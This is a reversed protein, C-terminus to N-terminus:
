AEGDDFFDHSVEKLEYVQAITVGVNHELMLEALREGDILVVKKGEIREVSERADRTFSSTTLFVGKRAKYQDMSGVFGRVDPGGVNSQWQKAQLCVVDLGLKDEKIVGDIGGDGVKGTVQGDGYGMAMMLRVVVQEFFGSSCERLRSLLEEATAKRLTQFSAELLERPTKESAPNVPGNDRNTLLPEDVEPKRVRYFDRFSEYGRLLEMDVKAPRKDLVKRGEDSLCIKGWGPNNILGAALLNAKAWGVRNVFLKNPPGSPMFQKREEETLRFHEALQDTLDRMRREKGDTLAQLMPLMITQFDPIPMPVERPPLSRALRAPSGGWDDAVGYKGLRVRATNYRCPPPTM